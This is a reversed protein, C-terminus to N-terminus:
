GKFAGQIFDALIAKIEENDEDNVGIYPRAPITTKHGRGAKGGKQHIRAYELNSGWFVADATVAASLSGQLQGKDVLTKGFRGSDAKARRGKRKATAKRASHGLGQQWARASPEWAKGDPGKGEQFRQITSSVMAEGIDQLLAKRRGQLAKAAEGLCKDLGGWHMGFGTKGSM